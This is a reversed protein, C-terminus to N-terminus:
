AQLINLLEEVDRKNVLQGYGLFSTSYFDDNYKKFALIYTV